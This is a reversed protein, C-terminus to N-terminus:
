QQCAYKSEQSSPINDSLSVIIKLESFKYLPSVTCDEEYQAFLAKQATGDKPWEALPFMYSTQGKDDMLAQNNNVYCLVRARGDKSGSGAWKSTQFFTLAAESKEVDVDPPPVFTSLCNERHSLQVQQVSQTPECGHSPQAAFTDEKSVSDHESACHCHCQCSDPDSERSKIMLISLSSGIAIGFLGALLIKVM